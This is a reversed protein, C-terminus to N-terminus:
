QIGCDSRTVECGGLSWYMVQAGGTNNADHRLSWAGYCSSCECECGLRPAHGQTSLELAGGAYFTPNFDISGTPDENLNGRFTGGFLCSSASPFFNILFLIHLLALLNAAGSNM